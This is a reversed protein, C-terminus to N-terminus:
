SSSSLSSRTRWMNGVVKKPQPNDPGRDKQGSTFYRWGDYYGAIAITTKIRYSFKGNVMLKQTSLNFQFVEGILLMRVNEHDGPHKESTGGTIVISNNVVVWAFEIHSNPKPMPPLSEWKVDQDLM